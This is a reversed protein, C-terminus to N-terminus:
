ESLGLGEAGPVDDRSLGHQRIHDEFSKGQASLAARYQALTEQESKLWAALTTTKERLPHLLHLDSPRHDYICAEKNISLIQLFADVREWSTSGGFRMVEYSVHTEKGVQRSLPTPFQVEVRFGHPDTLWVNLGNHRGHDAWFSAASTTRYGLRHLQDLVCAVTQGYGAEPVEVSFRVRDKVEALYQEPGAGEFSFDELLKRGLSEASKVNHEEDVVRADGSPIAEVVRHLDTSVRTAVEHSVAVSAIFTARHEPPLSEFAQREAARIADLPNDIGTPTASWNGPGHHPLPAPAGSANVVLAELSVVNIPTSVGHHHYLPTHESIRGIQPDVYLVTGNQNLAAWSHSGGGELDTVIFAYAGHGTNLLHNTLNQAAQDMASRAAAPDADGLHPCLNQFDGGTALRIRNIGHTEGGLPRDPNGNAYVDFTRPASVRPRGHIYTDFLALTGDVCNLGRTPDAAPGGDNALRFWTGERPDPLRSVNGHRDRPVANEIDTQHVALPPRLGGPSNYHRTRDIPPRGAFGDLASRDTTRVGGPALNGVDRNIRAWDPPDVEVREPALDGTRVQGIQDDIEAVIESLERAQHRYQAERLTFGARNAEDARQGLDLIRARNDEAISELYDAYENRRNEEHTRRAHQAYGFYAREDRIEPQPASPLHTTAAYERVPQRPATRPGLADAIRELDSLSSRRSGPATSGPPESTSDVPVGGTGRVPAAPRRSTLRVAPGMSMLPVNTSSVPTSVPSAPPASTGSLPDAFGVTATSALVGSGDSPSSVSLDSPSFVSLSSPTSPSPPAVDASPVVPPPADSPLPLPSPAPSPSPSSQISQAPSQSTTSPTDAHVSDAAPSPTDAHVPFATPSPAPSTSTSPTSASASSADTSTSASPLLDVATHDTPTLTSLSPGEDASASPSDDARLGNDVSVGSVQGAGVTTGEFAEDGGVAFSAGDSVPLSPVDLGKIQDIGLSSTGHIGAGVAGSSASKALGSADPLEGFTAAAGFEAMVEGGAGRFIGGHGHSGAQAGTAAAGGAFGALATRGMGELDFGDSRGTSQQYMQIGGNTAIEERAEDFGEDLAERGLKRLGERSTVQKIARGATQRLAKTGLQEVLRRFIQQIALRTAVILGGAAPSAAGLTLAVSVAMGVLEVLFIGIEIWAELKAAELDAGCGEVLKGLEGSVRLLDHLPANDDGAVMRWADEFGEATIGAGGYGSLFRGAASMAAENPEALSTALSFWRDAVDWTAVENGAPWDFGVVWELAEYAWAPVDFPSFELPHPIPSPLVTMM